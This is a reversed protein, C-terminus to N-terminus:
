WRVLMDAQWSKLKDAKWIVQSPTELMKIVSDGAVFLDANINLDIIAVMKQLM